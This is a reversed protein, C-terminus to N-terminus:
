WLDVGELFSLVEVGAKQNRITEENYCMKKRSTM